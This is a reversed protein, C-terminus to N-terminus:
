GFSIHMQEFIISLLITERDLIVAPSLFVYCFLVHLTSSTNRSRFSFDIEIPFLSSHVFLMLGYVRIEPALFPAM